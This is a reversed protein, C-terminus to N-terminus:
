TFFKFKSSAGFYSEIIEKKGEGVEAVYYEDNASVNLPAINFIFIVILSILFFRNM